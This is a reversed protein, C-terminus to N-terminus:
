RLAGSPSVGGCSLGRNKQALIAPFFYCDKAFNTLVRPSYSPEKRLLHTFVEYNTPVVYILGARRYGACCLCGRGWDGNGHASTHVKIENLWKFFCMLNVVQEWFFHLVLLTNCISYSCVMGWIGISGHHALSWSGYIQDQFFSLWELHTGRRHVNLKKPSLAFRLHLGQLLECKSCCICWLSPHWLYSGYAHSLAGM